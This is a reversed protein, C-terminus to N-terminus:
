RVAANQPRSPPIRSQTPGRKRGDTVGASVRRRRRVSRVSQGGVTPTASISWTVACVRMRTHTSGTSKHSTYHPYARGWFADPDVYQFSQENLHWRRTRCNCSSARPDRISTRENRRARAEIIEITWCSETSVERSRRACDCLAGCRYRAGSGLTVM